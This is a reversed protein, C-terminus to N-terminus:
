GTRHFLHNLEDWRKMHLCGKSFGFLGDKMKSFPHCPAKLSGVDYLVQDQLSGGIRIRLNRFAIFGYLINYISHSMINWCLALCSLHLNIM